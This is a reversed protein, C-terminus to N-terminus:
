FICRHYLVYYYIYLKDMTRCKNRLETLEDLKIMSILVGVLYVETM